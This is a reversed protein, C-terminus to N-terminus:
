GDSRDKWYGPRRKAHAVAVVLTEAPLVAYVVNYPFRSITARRCKRNQRVGEYLSFQFPDQRISNMSEVVRQYFIEGLGAQRDEYYQMAERLEAEAEAHVRLKM